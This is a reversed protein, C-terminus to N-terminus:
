PFPENVNIFSGQAIYNTCCFNYRVPFSDYIFSMQFDPALEIFEQRRIFKVRQIMGQLMFFIFILFYYHM